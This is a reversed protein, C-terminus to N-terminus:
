GDTWEILELRNSAGWVDNLITSNVDALGGPLVASVNFAPLAIMWRLYMRPFLRPIFYAGLVAGLLFITILVRKRTRGAKM